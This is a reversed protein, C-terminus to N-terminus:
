RGAAARRAERACRLIADAALDIDGDTTSWSSVSVQMAALGHRDDRRALM